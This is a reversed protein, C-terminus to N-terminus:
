SRISPTSLTSSSTSSTATSRSAARSRDSCSLSVRRSHIADASCISDRVRVMVDLSQHFASAALFTARIAPSRTASADSVWPMADNLKRLSQALHRQLRDLQENAAREQQSRLSALTPDRCEPDRSSSSTSAASGHTATVSARAQQTTSTADATRQNSEDDSSFPPSSSARQRAKTKRRTRTKTKPGQPQRDTTMAIRASTTRTRVQVSRISQPTVRVTSAASATAGDSRKRVAQEDTRSTQSESREVAIAELLFRFFVLRQICLLSSLRWRQVLEFQHLLSVCLADHTRGNMSQRYGGRRSAARVPSLLLFDSPSLTEVLERPVPVDICELLDHVMETTCHVLPLAAALVNDHHGSFQLLTHQLRSSYPVRLLQRQLHRNLVALKHENLHKRTIQLVLSRLRPLQDFPLFWTIQLLIELPVGAYQPNALAFSSSPSKTTPSVTTTAPATCAGSFLEILLCELEWQTVFVGLETETRAVRPENLALAHLQQFCKSTAHLAKEVCFRVSTISLGAADFPKATSRRRKPSYGHTQQRMQQQEHSATISDRRLAGATYKLQSAQIEQDLKRERALKAKLSRQMETNTSQTNHSTQKPSPISSSTEVEDEYKSGFLQAWASKTEPAFAATLSAAFGLPRSAIPAASPATPADGSDLRQQTENHQSSASDIHEHSPTEIYAPPPDSIDVKDSPQDHDSGSSEHKEEASSNQQELTVQVEDVPTSLTVIAAPTTGEVTTLDLTAPHPTPSADPSSSAVTVQEVPESDLAPAPATAHASHQADLTDVSSTDTDHAVPAAPTSTATTSDVSTREDLPAFGPKLADLFDKITVYPDYFFASTFGQVPISARGQEDRQVVFGLECPAVHEDQNAAHDDRTAMAASEDRVSTTEHVADTPASQGVAAAEANRPETAAADDGDRGSKGSEM